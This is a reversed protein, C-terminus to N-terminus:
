EWWRRVAWMSLLGLLTGLADGIVDSWEGHRGLHMTMQLGEILTGFLIGGGLMLSFAHQRLGPWRQQRRASFYSLGALVFFVFAHAATDFSILEWPPVAPMDQAPTLTLVLVLAAWTLPLAVLPRRRFSPPATPLM